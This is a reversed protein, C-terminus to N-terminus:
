SSLRHCRGYAALTLARALLRGGKRGCRGRSAADCRNSGHELAICILCTFAAYFGGDERILPMWLLCFAFLRRHDSVWAALALTSMALIAIEDHPYAAAQLLANSLGGVFIVSLTKLDMRKCRRWARV